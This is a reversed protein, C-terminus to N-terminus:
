DQEPRSVPQEAGNALVSGNESPDAKATIDFLAAIQV